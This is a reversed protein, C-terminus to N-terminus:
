ENNLVEFKYGKGWVTSIDWRSHKVTDLKSRLRKIHSDVTRTDGFYDYGWITNLLNDRTFIRNPSQALTFLIEIEKKTLNIKENGVLVEFNDINISLNDIKLYNDQPSIRRLIAKIRAMVEKAVFPKVIYDDAGIELGMIRDYDENRATIMIIPVMSDKRIKSCVTFGDMVPMMVDLLIMEFHHELFLDYAEQGHSATYVKFGEDKSYQSLIDVIEKNDDAILIKKMSVGWVRKKNYCIRTFLFLIRRLVRRKQNM